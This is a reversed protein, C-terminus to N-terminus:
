QRERAANISVHMDADIRREGLIRNRLALCGRDAPNGRAEVVHSRPAIIEVAAARVTVEHWYNEILGLPTEPDIVAIMNGWDLGLVDVFHFMEDEIMADGRELYEHKISAIAQVSWRGVLILKEHDTGLFAIVDGMKFEDHPRCLTQHRFM